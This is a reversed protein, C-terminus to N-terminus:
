DVVASETEGVLAALATPDPSVYFQYSFRETGAPATKPIDAGHAGGWNLFAVASNPKFPVMKVLDCTLGQSGPYFTNTRDIQPTGNIRYFSTGFAESDGPRAFYLLCTLVVRKPDLHPDLHYGPRRLMLRGATAEHGIAALTPGREEGYERIYFERIHPAFRGILAPVMIRPILMEELFSLTEITRAPAVRIGSLRLNQKTSDKQSFFVAPPIGDLLAQYSGAPLLDDIVIHVSPDTEIPARAIARQVHDAVASMQFLAARDTNRRRDAIDLTMTDRLVRVEHDLRSLREAVDAPAHTASAQGASSRESLENRLREIDRTLGDFRKDLRKELKDSAAVLDERWRARLVPLIGSRTLLRQLVGAV